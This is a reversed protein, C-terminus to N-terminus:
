DITATATTSVSCLEAELYNGIKQQFFYYQCANL